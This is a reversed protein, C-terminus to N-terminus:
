CGVPMASVFERRFVCVCVGDHMRLLYLGDLYIVVM